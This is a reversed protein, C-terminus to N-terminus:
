DTPYRWRPAYKKVLEFITIPKCEECQGMDDTTKCPKKCFRCRDRRCPFVREWAPDRTNLRVGNEICENHYDKEDDSDCETTCDCDHTIDLPPPPPPPSSVTLSIDLATAGETGRLVEPADEEAVSPTAATEAASDRRKKLLASRQSVRATALINKARKSPNAAKATVEKLGAATTRVANV